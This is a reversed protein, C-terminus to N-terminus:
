QGNDKVSVRLSYCKDCLEQRPRRAYTLVVVKFKKIREASFNGPLYADGDGPRVLSKYLEEKALLEKSWLQNFLGAQIREFCRDLEDSLDADMMDMVLPKGYRIAGLLSMRLKEPEIQPKSLMNVYNTDL